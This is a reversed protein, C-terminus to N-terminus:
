LVGLVGALSLETYTLLSSNTRFYLVYIGQLEHVNSPSMETNTCFYVKKRYGFVSHPKLDSVHYMCANISHKPWHSASFVFTHHASSLVSSCSFRFLLSGFELWDRANRANCTRIHDNRLFIATNRGIPPRSSLLTVLVVSSPPVPFVLYSVASSWGTVLMALTAHGLITM